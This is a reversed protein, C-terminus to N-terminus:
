SRGKKASRSKPSSSLSNCCRGAKMRSGYAKQAESVARDIDNEALYISSMLLRGSVNNPEKTLIKEAQERAMKIDKSLLSFTGLQLRADIFGQDLEVSKLFSDFAERMRGVRTLALGLQYHARADNPDIQIVNKYEVVAENFKNESFYTEAKKRHREKKAEKSCGSVGLILVILAFISLVTILKHRPQDMNKEQPFLHSMLDM